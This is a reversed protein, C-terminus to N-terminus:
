TLDPECTLKLQRILLQRSSGAYTNQYKAGPSEDFFLLEMDVMDHRMKSSASLYVRIKFLFEWHDPYMQNKIYDSAIKIKIISM